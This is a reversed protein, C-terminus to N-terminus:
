SADCPPEKLALRRLRSATLATELRWAPDAEADKKKVLLWEKGTRGGAFRALAFGGRLRRGRLVFGLAGARMRDEPPGPEAPEWTGSDWVVVPGAGYEGPPIIGEFDIYDVPHDPVMVALRREAPNMSPGKPIAWSKLVGAMELRFDYHLRTAKHEHV